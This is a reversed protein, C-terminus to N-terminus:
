GNPKDQPSIVEPNLLLRIKVLAVILGQETIASLQEGFGFNVGPILIWYAPPIKGYLVQTLGLLSRPNSSHGLSNGDIEGGDLSQVQIEVTTEPSIAVADVFIVINAQAIDEALEPTLQHRALSRVNELNWEQVSEAVKQGVGDDCRLTNGYGIVLDVMM